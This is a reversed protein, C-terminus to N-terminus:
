SERFAKDFYSTFPQLLYDMPSRSGTRIFAEAPMGPTLIVGEPPVLSIRATYFSLGQKDQLTDASVQVVTGELEPAARGSFAPLTLRVPQGAQVEDVNVPPIRAEAVLAEQQPIIWLVPDAPSIVANPTTVALALVRGAVPARIDLRDIKQQLARRTEALEAQQYSFDRLQTIADERRQAILGTAQMRYETIRGSAEALSAVLAGAEGELQAKEREVQRVRARQTLGEALLRRQDALEEAILRRQEDNAGTQAKLGDIQNGVQGERQSLQDLQATFTEARAVFLTRQGEMLLAVDPRSAPLADTFTIEAAGDREALLRALRAEVEFLQGEAISLQSRLDSGDLRILLEGAGVSQGDTVAIREVVGGDPHQVIQRNQPVQLTASAVVAGDITSLVAWAGFGGVVVALTAIGAWVSGKVDFSM